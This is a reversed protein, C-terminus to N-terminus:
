FKEYVRNALHKEVMEEYDYVNFKINEIIDECCNEKPENKDVLGMIEVEGEFVEKDISDEIDKENLCNLERERFKILKSVREVSDIGKEEWEGGIRHSDEISKHKLGLIIAQVSVPDKLLAVEQYPCKAVIEYGGLRLGSYKDELAKKKDLFKEINIMEAIEPSQAFTRFYFRALTKKKTKHFIVSGDLYTKKLGKWNNPSYELWRENRLAEEFKDSFELVKCEFIFAHADVIQPSNKGFDYGSLFMEIEKKRESIVSYIKIPHPICYIFGYQILKNLSKSIGSISSDCENSLSKQNYSGHKCIRKLVKMDLNTLPVKKSSFIKKTNAM